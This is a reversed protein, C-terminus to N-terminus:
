HGPHAAGFVISAIALVVIAATLSHITLRFRFDARKWNECELQYVRRELRDIQAQEGTGLM